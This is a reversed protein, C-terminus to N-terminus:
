EDECQVKAVAARAWGLRGWARAEAEGSLFDALAAREQPTAPQVVGGRVEPEPALPQILAPDCTAPAAPVPADPAQHSRTACASLLCSAALLVAMRTM